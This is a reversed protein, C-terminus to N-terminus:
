SIMIIEENELIIDHEELKIDYSFGRGYKPGYTMYVFAKMRDLDWYFSGKAREFFMGSRMNVEKDVEDEQMPELTNNRYMWAKEFTRKYYHETKRVANYRTIVMYYPPVGYDINHDDEADFEFRSKIVSKYLEICKDILVKELNNNDIM